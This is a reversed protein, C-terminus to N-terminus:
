IIKQQRNIFQAKNRSYDGRSLYKELLVYLVIFLYRSGMEKINLKSVGTKRNQWTIPIITYSYGRTIAKLPMEVTLNFHHSLLPSIGEIVERRYAKFANTTDNFKLGFLISIFLNALRNVLLKHTPYDIVKGGKIFRSGLVCDYGQQLKHYYNVINEPADSSDAMVVAVADGQFNELGCRVAFGFGNPYYNNMYRVKSHDCSLQQLLEETRDRSNDNVVLIEYAIKEEELIQTISQITPVICGEENHAPIVISFVKIESSKESQEHRPHSSKNELGPALGEPYYLRQSQSSKAPTKFVLRDSILYNFVASLLVGVLTNIAYNVKWWDLLPFVIFIRSIVATGASLHYLPIQRWLVERITWVGGPWVWIRYIFFSALLSLEIAVANAVNRLAPTNFGLWEILGFILLLNIFAAVGGGIIFKFIKQRLLKKLM